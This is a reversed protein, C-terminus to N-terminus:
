KLINLISNKFVAPEICFISEPMRFINHYSVTYNFTLIQGPVALVDGKVVAADDAGMDRVALSQYFSAVQVGLNRSGSHVCLWLKGASDREAELYHNGSGLTGISADIRDPNGIFSNCNLRARMAKSRADARSHISNGMPVREHAVIDLRELLEPTVEDALEIALVGCDLDVGVLNAIVKDTFTSTFGIVCGKGAHTDPMIRVCEGEFPPLQEIAHIQDLAEQEVDDAYIKLDASM